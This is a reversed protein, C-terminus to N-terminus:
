CTIVFSSSWGRCPESKNGYQNTALITGNVNNLINWHSHGFVWAYMLDYRMYQELDTGYLYNKPYEEVRYINKLIPAHHTIIVNKLNHEKGFIIAKEINALHYQFLINMNQVTFPVDSQIVMGKFSDNMASVHAHSVTQPINTWLTAGIFNVDGIVMNLGNQLFTVRNAKGKNLKEIEAVIHEDVQQFTMPMCSRYEHNGCIVITYKFNTICWKLFRWYNDSKPCGIDGALILVDANADLDLLKPFSLSRRELHIDSLIQVRM